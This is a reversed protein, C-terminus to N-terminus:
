SFIAGDLVAGTFDAGELVAGAFDAGALDAGRFNAGTLDAHRFNVPLFGVFQWKEADPLGTGGKASVFSAGKLIARSFDAEHIFSGDLCCKGMSAERFNAGILESGQLSASDLCSRRFQAYRFDTGAFSKGSFDLGSCDCAVYEGELRKEFWSALQAADKNKSETFVPETGAMYEGVGIQFSDNKLIDTFPSKDVCETIAFRVTNTFYSYFDPLVEMMFAVIEQATAKGAYGKRASLLRDWLEDFYVFLPSVDYEGVIHQNKDGFWEDGYAWVESVYHRKIFDTYLMTYGLYSIASLSQKSQLRVVESCVSQFHGALVPFWQQRRAAFLAETKLLYENRLAASLEIFDAYLHM